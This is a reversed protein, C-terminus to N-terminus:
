ARRELGKQRLRWLCTEIRDQGFFPEGKFVLTPVGWHGAAELAAQNATVATEYKPRDAAIAADMVALDLGAAATARQLHDGQHWNQTKGNWILRSVADIFPLGRDQRVAEVGLFTLRHIHPQEKPFRRTKPDMLVPDPVPWAYDIGLQEAVRYTDRMLYRTWLPNVREFFDPTRIAIPFVPRVNVTLDYDRALEVIRATGLYSYPSRFSWFLDIELTM